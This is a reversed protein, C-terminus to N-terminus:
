TNSTTASTTRAILRREPRRVIYISRSCAQSKRVLELSAVPVKQPEVAANLVVPSIFTFILLKPLDIM